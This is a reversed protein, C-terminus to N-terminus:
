PVSILLSKRKMSKEKRNRERNHYQTIPLSAQGEYDLGTNQQETRTQARKKSKFLMWFVAASAGPRDFSVWLRM